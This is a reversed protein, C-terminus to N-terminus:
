PKIPKPKDPASMMVVAVVGGDHGPGFEDEAKAPEYYRVERVDMAMIQKLSELEGGRLGNLYVLPTPAASAGGTRTEMTQGRGAGSVSTGTMGMSRVGRPANLFHPRLARILQYIDGDKKSSAEIEERTILNRDKSKPKDQAAAGGPAITVAGTALALGLALSRVQMM